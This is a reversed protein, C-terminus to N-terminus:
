VLDGYSGVTILNVCPMCLAGHLLTARGQPLVLASSAAVVALLLLAARM